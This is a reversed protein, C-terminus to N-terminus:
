ASATVAVEAGHGAPVEEGAAVLGPATGDGLPGGGDLDFTWSRVDHVSGCIGMSIAGEVGLLRRVVTSRHARPCARAVVPRYRGAEVPWRGTSSSPDGAGASPDDVIRDETATM